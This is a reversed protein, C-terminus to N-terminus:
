TSGTTLPLLRVQSEARVRREVSTDTGQAVPLCNFFAINFNVVPSFDPATLYALMVENAVPTSGAKVLHFRARRWRFDQDNTNASAPLKTRM